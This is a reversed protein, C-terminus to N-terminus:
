ELLSYISHSFPYGIVLLPLSFPCLLIPFSVQATDRNTRCMPVSYTAEFDSQQWLAVFCCCVLLLCRHSLRRHHPLHSHVTDTLTITLPSHSCSHHVDLSKFRYRHNIHESGIYSVCLYGWKVWYCCLFLGSVTGVVLLCILRCYICTELSGSSNCGRICPRTFTTPLPKTDWLSPLAFQTFRTELCLPFM